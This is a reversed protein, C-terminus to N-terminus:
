RAAIEALKRPQHVENGPGRAGAVDILRDNEARVARVAHVHNEDALPLAGSQPSKRPADDGQEPTRFANAIPSMAKKGCHGTSALWITQTPTSSMAPTAPPSSTCRMRRNGRM